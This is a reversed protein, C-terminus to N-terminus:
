AILTAISSETVPITFIPPEMYLREQFLFYWPYHVNIGYCRVEVERSNKSENNELPYLLANMKLSGNAQTLEIVGIHGLQKAARLRLQACYRIMTKKIIPNNTRVILWEELESTKIFIFPLKEKLFMSIGKFNFDIIVIHLYLVFVSLTKTKKKKCWIPSIRNIFSHTNQIFFM